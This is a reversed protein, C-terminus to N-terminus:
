AMQGPVVKRKQELDAACNKESSLLIGLKQYKRGNAHGVTEVFFVGVATQFFAACQMALAAALCVSVAFYFRCPKTSKSRSDVGKSWLVGGECDKADVSESMSCLVIFVTKFILGTHKRTHFQVAFLIMM